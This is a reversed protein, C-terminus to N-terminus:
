VSSIPWSMKRREHRDGPHSSWTDLSWTLITLGPCRAMGSISSRADCCMVQNCRLDPHKHEIAQVGTLEDISITREEAAARQPATAYLTCEEVIKEDRQADAEDNLWSR